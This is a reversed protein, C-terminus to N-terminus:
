GVAKMALDPASAQRMVSEIETEERTRDWGLVPGALRAAAEVVVRDPGPVAGLETRRFIIDALTVAMESRVAHLIEEAPTMAERKLVGAMQAEPLRVEATRCRPSPRGLATFVRDVAREAVPRATTFKVGEVSLLGRVGGTRGHDVIRPREALADARGPENGAKLPLWGWHGRVVDEESLRAGPCAANFEQLLARVGGAVAGAVDGADALTYWTGLMTAEGQPAFFLFRRGGGIPDDRRTSRARVGVAVDALRRGLLLNLGLARQPLRELPTAGGSVRALLERTWPGASVLVVRAELDIEAGTLRDTVTAGHVAGELTRLREVRAYNAVVGGLNAAAQVFSLTLREPHLLQADYWLAGGTLGEDAFGSFLSLCEHRSVLRGDPISREPDLHRNRSWSTLDNLTLAAGMAARGRFGTGYFPVLVPLPQVLGPAIRLLTSRERSSERMRALNGRALYRLGGHVIRLSNASTGAGFDDQDVLAVSLGRLTADWAACAGHIGGGVVLLDFASRTLASLDRRM